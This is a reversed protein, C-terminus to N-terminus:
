DVFYFADGGTLIVRSDGYKKELQSIFSEIEYFTGRISGNQLAQTTNKGLIDEPIEMEVLPLNATHSNMARIRMQIGPSINGGLFCGNSDVFDYTICTGADIILINQNPYEIVAGAALVMRDIGLTKPTNYLNKFPVKTKSTLVLVNYYKQVYAFDTKRLSGVSSIIADHIDKYEKRIHRLTKLVDNSKVKFKDHIKGDKFVALKVFSNGVDIILNM